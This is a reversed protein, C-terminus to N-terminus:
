FNLLCKSLTINILFENLNCLRFVFSLNGLIIKHFLLFSSVDGEGQTPYDVIKQGLASSHQVPTQDSRGASSFQKITKTKRWKRISRPTPTSTSAAQGDSSTIAGENASTGTDVSTGPQISHDM